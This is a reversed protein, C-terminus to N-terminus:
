QGREDILAQTLSREAMFGYTGADIEVPDNPNNTDEPFHGFAHYIEHAMAAVSLSLGTMGGDVVTGVNEGTMSPKGNDDMRIGDWHFFGDSKNLPPQTAGRFIYIKGGGNVNPDTRGFVEKEDKAGDRKNSFRYEGTKNNKFAFKDTYNISYGAPFDYNLKVLANKANNVIELRHEATDGKENYDGFTPSVSGGGGGSVPPPAPAGSPPPPVIPPAPATVVVPPETPIGGGGDGGGEPPLLFPTYGHKSTSASLFVGPLEKDLIHLLSPNNKYFAKGLAHAYDPHDACFKKAGSIDGSMSIHDVLEDLGEQGGQGTQRAEYVDHRGMVFLDARM